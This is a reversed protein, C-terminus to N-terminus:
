RRKSREREAQAILRDITPLVHSEMYLRTRRRIFETVERENSPLPDDPDNRVGDFSATEFMVRSRLKRLADLKTVRDISGPAWDETHRAM